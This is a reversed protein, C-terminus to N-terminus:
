CGPLYDNALAHLQSYFGGQQLLAAETGEEVIVGRDLVLVRDMMALGYLDHTIYLVTKHQWWASLTQWLHNRTENDLAQTAEDLIVIPADQLFLRALALRQRQGASLKYGEDGVVTEYGQPLSNIFGALGAQNVAAVMEEETAGERALLINERITAHFLYPRQGLYGIQRRLDDRDVENLPVDGWSICNQEDPLFGILLNLLTTKGSGSSGVLATRSGPALRFSVDRLVEIGDEYAFTLHSVALSETAPLPQGGFPRPERPRDAAEKMAALADAAQNMYETAATVPQLAEFAAWAVWVATALFVGRITGSDVLPILLLLGGWLSLNALLNSSVQSFSEWAGFRRRERVLSGGSTILRKHQTEVAGFMMEETLGGIYDYLQEHYRQQLHHFNDRRRRCLRRYLYPMLVGGFLFLAILLAAFAWHFFSLYIVVPALILLAILPVNLVRLYFFKLIDIDGMIHKFVRGMGLRQLSLYSLKEMQEYYWLRLSKLIRFTVDHSVYREGYRFCARSIGFFRVAVILVMLDLIPPQFSAETILLSSYGLLGINAGIAAAGLLAAALMLTRYPRCLALMAGTVAVPKRKSPAETKGQRPVEKTQRGMTLTEVDPPPLRNAAVMQHDGLLRRFAGDRRQLASPSDYAALRGDELVLIKDMRAVTQLRHAIAIVTKGATLYDLARQVARDKQWDLNRTAEDLLILPADKLCARAIALLQGEGGSLAQGGQGVMTDYGQPLAEIFDAAGISRCVERVTEAALEDNGLRLNEMITGKFLYPNQPVVAMQRRLAAQEWDGIPLGGVVIEGEDATLFGLLLNLLTTKGSGSVGVIGVKEGATVTFSVDRLATRGEEYAFSLNRVTISPTEAGIQAGGTVAGEDEALFGYIDQAAEVGNLSNHYQTGLSRLPLYFDPALFLLFLAAQFDLTGAVLRLGLGVAILAISLTTLLELVFASLFAWKLVSLSVRRFDESVAEIKQYQGATRNFLKLTSLGALLDQFYGGMATLVRWQKKTQRKTWQGILAMFVPVLPATILMILGTPWDLPFVFLLFVIPLVASKFLQPLYKQFYVELTDLGETLLTQLEGRKEERMRLPGLATIKRLVRDRLRQQVGGALRLAFFEEAWSFLARALLVALLLVLPGRVAALSVGGLYVTAVIYALLYSQLAGCLGNLLGGLITGALFGSDQKGERWLNKEIM